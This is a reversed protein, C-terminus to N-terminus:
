DENTRLISSRKMFERIAAVDTEELELPPTPPSIPAATPPSLPLNTAPAVPETSESEPTLIRSIADWESDTLDHTGVLTQASKATIRSIMARWQAATLARGDRRRVGARDMLTAIQSWPTGGNRLTSFFQVHHRAVRELPLAAEVGNLAQAFEAAKKRAADRDMM